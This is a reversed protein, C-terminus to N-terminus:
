VKECDFPEEFYSIETEEMGCDICLESHSCEM